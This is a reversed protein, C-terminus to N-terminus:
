KPKMTHAASSRTVLVKSGHVAATAEAREVGARWRWVSGAGAWKSAGCPRTLWDVRDALQPASAIIRRGAEGDNAGIALLAWSAVFAPVPDARRRGAAAAALGFGAAGLQSALAVQTAPTAQLKVALLNVNVLSAITTWFYHLSFPLDGLM